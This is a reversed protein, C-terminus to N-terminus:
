VVKRFFSTSVWKLPVENSIRYWGPTEGFVWAKEDKLISGIVSSTVGPGSRVNVAIATCVVQYLAGTPPPEPPPVPTGEWVHLKAENCWLKRLAVTSGKFEWWKESFMEDAYWLMVAKCGTEVAADLFEAVEAPAARFVTTIGGISVKESYAAGAPIVPINKRAKLEAISKKLQYAPNHAGVWYVQPAHFDAAALFPGWAFNPQVSPFRYSCLGIPVGISHLGPVLVNTYIKAKADDITGPKNYPAEADMLFASAKLSKVDRIAIRARYAPDDDYIFQWATVWINTARFADGASVYLSNHSAKDVKICVWSVGTDKCKAIWTNIPMLTLDNIFLGKGTCPFEFTM